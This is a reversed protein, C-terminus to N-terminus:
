LEAVFNLQCAIVAAGFDLDLDFLGFREEGRLVILRGRRDVEFGHFDAAAAAFERVHNDAQGEAQCLEITQFFGFCEDAVDDRDHGLFGTGGFAGVAIAAHKIFACAIFLVCFFLGIEVAAGHPGPVKKDVGVRCVGFGSVGSEGDGLIVVFLRGQQCFCGAFGLTVLIAQCLMLLSGGGIPGGYGFILAQDVDKAGEVFADTGPILEAPYVVEQFFIGRCGLCEQAVVFFFADGGIGIVAEFGFEASGFAQHVSIALIKVGSPTGPLDNLTLLSVAWRM